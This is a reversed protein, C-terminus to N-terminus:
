ASEGSTAADYAEEVLQTAIGLMTPLSVDSTDAYVQRNERFAQAGVGYRLYKHTNSPATVLKMAEGLTISPNRKQTRMITAMLAKNNHWYDISNKDPLAPDDKRSEDLYRRNRISEWKELLWQESDPNEPDINNRAAERIVAVPVSCDVFLRLLFEAGHVKAITPALARGDVILLSVDPRNEIINSVRKRFGDKVATRVKPYPSVRAVTTEVQVDYLAKEGLMGILEYRHAAYDSLDESSLKAVVDGIVNDPMSPDLLNDNLLGLTLARYDQGTEDIMAGPMIEGLHKTITGKGSRPGGSSEIVRLIREDSNPKAM